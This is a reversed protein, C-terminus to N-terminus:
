EVKTRRNRYNTMESRETLLSPRKKDSTCPAILGLVDKHKCSLPFYKTMKQLERSSTFGDKPVWFLM